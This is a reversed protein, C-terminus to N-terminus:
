GLTINVVVLERDCSNHAGRLGYRLALREKGHKGHWVTLHPDTAAQLTVALSQQKRRKRWESVSEHTYDM